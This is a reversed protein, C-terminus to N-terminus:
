APEDVGTQTSADAPAAARPFFARSAVGLALFLAGAAVFLWTGAAGYLVGGGVLGVISALSGASGAAGQVTGQDEAGAVAAIRAQFTPWSLGNGLAFLMAGGFLPVPEARTFAVFSLALLVMGGAFLRGPRVRRSAATLVPGEAVVLAVSLVTFFAGMKGASFGLPGQAHVPFVAYFINFALFLLFTGALMRRVPATFTSRQRLLVSTSVRARPAARKDPDRLTLCLAAAVASMVTAALVPAVYASGLAGLLAAIGPGVTFGVSAAVGMRGYARQRKQEDGVTLDAVLASAVSINGGTVGDLARAAFVVILPWTISAGAFHALETRPLVLAVLFLLWGAVTGGESVLLVRRRGVRDSWRGMLPAGVLQFASYTAGLLGYTWPAGGFDTVLYVLFPLAISFGLAGILQVALIPLFAGWEGRSSTM